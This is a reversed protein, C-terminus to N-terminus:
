ARLGHRRRLEAKVVRATQGRWGSAHSLFYRLQIDATENGVPDDLEHCDNVDLAHLYVALYPDIADWDSYAIAVIQQLDASPLDVEDTSM